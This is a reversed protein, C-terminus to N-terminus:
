FISFCNSKNWHVKKYFIVNIFTTFFISNMNAIKSQGIRTNANEISLKRTNLFHNIAGINVKTM